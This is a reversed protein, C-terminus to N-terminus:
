VPEKQQLQLLKQYFEEFHLGTKGKALRQYIRQLEADLTGQKLASIADISIGGAGLCDIVTGDTAVKATYFGEQCYQDCNACAEDRRTPGQTDVVSIHLGNPLVVNYDHRGGQIELDGYLQFLANKIEKGSLFEEMFYAIEQRDRNDRVVLDLFTISDFGIQAIFGIYEPLHVKGSKGLVCNATLKLKPNAEKLMRVGEAIDALSHNSGVIYQYQAEDYTDISVILRDLSDPFRLHKKLYQQLLTGNTTMEVSEFGMKKSEEVIIPWQPNMMPEGGTLNVKRFGNHYFAELIRLYDSTSIVGTCFPTKRFDEMAIIRDTPSTHSNDCYRCKLNCVGSIAVRVKSKFVFSNQDM